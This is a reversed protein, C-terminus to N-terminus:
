RYQIKTNHKPLKITLSSSVFGNLSELYQYMIWLWLIDNILSFGCINQIHFTFIEKKKLLLNFQKIIFIM